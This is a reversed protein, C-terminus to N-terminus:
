RPRRRRKKDNNMVHGELNHGPIYARYIKEM